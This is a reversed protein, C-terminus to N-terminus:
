AEDKYSLIRLGNLIVALAAGDDALVAMWLTALGFVSLVLFLLKLSLALAINQKIIEIAKRSLGFLTPLKGVDDAMLVVDATELATDTGSAGMAIGVSSAALAPTDNIGDGVMAVTGYRQTFDEVAKVKQLPLLGAECDDIGVEAAIQRVTAENDGSLVMMHRIGLHRLRRIADKSQRRATDQIAIIGLAETGRGLVAVTKGQELFTALSREVLPSHYGRERCLTQNGVYYTEGGISAKVGLGPIAEFADVSVQDTRLGERAAERLVAAALHHESRQEIAAIFRLVENRDLSNLPVVDTVTPRGETLTGTKDFAIAQVKSLTELYKGGKILIGRRAATTLASVITVPTSIVLACPCAIVLLVLARYFWTSFTDQLLLPPVLAVLIAGALVAPTYIRAVRDVFHQIPARKQQAEEVLHIIRAITTEESRHTVRVHLSGHENISGAYVADGIVKEIPVSEGTIPSEDTYSQGHVVVGDLPIRDGPRIIIIDGPKIDRARVHEEHDNHLITAEDPSLRMLSRIATRTRSASYAELSLSLAYLVIVAAGEEWKGILLAGLVATTMLVNMDLTLTRIAAYAKRFPTWGGVVISALLLLHSPVSSAVDWELIIGALALVAAVATVILHAHRAWFPEERDLDQKSRAGLGAERLRRLLLTDDITRPISLECTVSNFSYHEPDILEDLTKRLVAEETTCCVGSVFFTKRGNDPQHM